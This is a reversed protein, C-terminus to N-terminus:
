WGIDFTSEQMRMKWSYQIDSLPHTFTIKGDPDWSIFEWPNNKNINLFGQKYLDNHLIKVKQVQKLWDPQFFRLSTSPKGASPVYNADYLDSPALNDVLMITYYKNQTTPPMMVTGELIDYIQNDQMFVCDSINFKTSTDDKGSLVSMTLGEDYQLSPFIEGVHRNKDILYDASTCFSDM